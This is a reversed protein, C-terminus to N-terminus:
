DHRVSQSGTPQVRSPEETLALIRSRVSMEQELSNEQGWSPVQTEQMEQM